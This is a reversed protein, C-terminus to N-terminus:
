NEMARKILAAALASVQGPDGPQPKPRELAPAQIGEERRIQDLAHVAVAIFEGTEPNIFAIRVMKELHLLAEYELANVEMLMLLVRQLGNLRM